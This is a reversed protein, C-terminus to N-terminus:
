HEETFRLINGLISVLLRYFTRKSAAKLDGQSIAWEISVVFRRESFLSMSCITV